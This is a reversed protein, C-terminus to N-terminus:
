SAMRHPVKYRTVSVNQRIRENHYVTILLRFNDQVTACFVSVLETLRYKVDSIHMLVHNLNTVHEHCHEGGLTVEKLM